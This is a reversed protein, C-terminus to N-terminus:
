GVLKYRNDTPFFNKCQGEINKWNLGRKWQLFYGNKSTGVNRGGSVVMEVLEFRKLSWNRDITSQTGSNRSTELFRSFQHSFGHEKCSVRWTARFVWLKRHRIEWTKGVQSEVDQPASMALYPLSDPPWALNTAAAHPPKRAGFIPSWWEMKPLRLHSSVWGLYDKPILQM